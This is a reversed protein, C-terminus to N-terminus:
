CKVPLKQAKGNSSYKDVLLNQKVAIDCLVIKSLELLRNYISRAVSFTETLYLHLSNRRYNLESLYALVEDTVNLYNISYTPKLLTSYDITKDSLTELVQEPRIIENISFVEHIHLPRNKQEKSLKKYDPHNKLKHIIFGNSLLMVKFYNEFCTSIKISDMLSEFAFDAILRKNDSSFMAEIGGSEEQLIVLKKYEDIDKICKAQVFIRYSWTLIHTCLYDRTSPIFYADLVNFDTPKM